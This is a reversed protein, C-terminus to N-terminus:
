LPGKEVQVRAGAKLDSSARSSADTERATAAAARGTAGEDEEDFGPGRGGPGRDIRSGRSGEYHVQVDTTRMIGNYTMIEEESGSPSVSRCETHGSKTLNKLRISGRRGPVAGDHRSGTGTQTGGKGGKGGNATAAHVSTGAGSFVYPSNSNPYLYRNHGYRASSGGFLSPLLSRFLPRLAPASASVIAVNTEVVSLTVTIDHYPDGGTPPGYFLKIVGRLRVIGIITVVLGLAFIGLVAMKAAKPMKLGLFIWFPLAIVAIDTLITISSITVHFSNDVCRTNPDAKVAMDWNAEIPLCQLVAVLFVAIAQLANFTNLFYIAYKVGPKQGGLRLLFCLVSAKVFALIPNYFIQALYFWWLGPAPDFQPVDKQRWGFYNLKIYMYFPGIMMLSFIMAGTVLYDDLGWTRMRLRTYARLSYTVFALATFFFIVFLAAQQLPPTPIDLVNGHEPRRRLLPTM